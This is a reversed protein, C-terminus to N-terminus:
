YRRERSLAEDLFMRYREYRGSDLRGDEAAARVGCVPEGRHLCSAFQCQDTYPRFDPYLEALDAAKVKEPLYIQSFGPTDAVWGGFSLALLEVHRTTHKGRGLKASIEGTKLRLNTELANLLSSKGVGSPGAFVTTRDKMIERLGDLGFGTVTSTVAMRFGAPEYIGVLESLGEPDLDRKNFCIVPDAGATRIMMLLRDLLWLDPKPDVAALVVVVQDMNAVPPRLLENRRPLVAEVVGTQRADDVVLFEVRDGPLFVQKRVRFRGRLSCAWLRKGDDVYYFGGYGKVLLGEL